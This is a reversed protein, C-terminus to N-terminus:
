NKDNGESDLKLPESHLWIGIDREKLHQCLLWVFRVEKINKQLVM